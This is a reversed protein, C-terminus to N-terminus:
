TYAGDDGCQRRAWMVQRMRDTAWDICHQVAPESTQTCNCLKSPRWNLSASRLCAMQNPSTTTPALCCLTTLSSLVVGSGRGKQQCCVSSGTASPTSRLQTMKYLMMSEPSCTCVHTTHRQTQTETHMQKLMLQHRAHMHEHPLASYRGWFMVHQGLIACASCACNSWHGAEWIAQKQHTQPFAAAKGKQM